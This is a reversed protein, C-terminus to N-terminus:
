GRRLTTLGMLVSPGAAPRKATAVTAPVAASTAAPAIKAAAVPLPVRTLTTDASNM